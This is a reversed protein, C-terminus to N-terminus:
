KKQLSMFIENEASFLESLKTNCYSYCITSFFFSYYKPLNSLVNNILMFLIKSMSIFNRYIFFIGFKKNIIQKNAGFSLLLNNEFDNARSQFM